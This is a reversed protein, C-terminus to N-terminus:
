CDGPIGQFGKSDVPIGLFGWSDSPTGLLDETERGINTCVEYLIKSIDLGEGGYPSDCAALTEIEQFKRKCQLIQFNM